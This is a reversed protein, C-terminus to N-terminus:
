VSVATRRFCGWNKKRNKKWSRESVGTTGLPQRHSPRHSPRHLQYSETEGTLCIHHSLHFRHAVNEIFVIIQIARQVSPLRQLCMPWKVCATSYSNCHRWNAWVIYEHVEHSGCFLWLKDEYVAMISKIKREATPPNHKRM